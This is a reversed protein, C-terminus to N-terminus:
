TAVRGCTLVTDVFIVSALILIFLSYLGSALFLFASFLKRLVMLKIESLNEM